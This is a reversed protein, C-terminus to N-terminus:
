FKRQKDEKCPRRAPPDMEDAKPCTKGSSQVAANLDKVLEALANGYAIKHLPDDVDSPIGREELVPVTEPWIQVIESVPM